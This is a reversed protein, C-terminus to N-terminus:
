FMAVTRPADADTTIVGNVLMDAIEADLVAPLLKDLAEVISVKFGKDVLTEAMEMGILGAGIIVAKKSASGAMLEIIEDADPIRKLVHIGKLDIGPIPPVVPSAGTSLVLKDYALDYKKGSDTDTVSIKHGQRDISDVTTHLLVDVNSIKKFAAADRVMLESRARVAGAIYYPLGCAAYSVYIDDTIMTIQANADLRRARAAAKPGCAGGGVIVLRKKNEM